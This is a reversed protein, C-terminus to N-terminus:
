RTLVEINKKGVYVMDEFRVGFRKPIYIGPEITFVMGERVVDSSDSSVSPKEHVELGVGHGTSHYFSYGKKKIEEEVFDHIDRVPMGIELRDIAELELNLIFESVEREERGASGVTITRTMDSFYNNYRAGLDVIVLSNDKIKEQSPNAHIDATSAGSALLIGQRFPPCESGNRRLESEVEAAAEAESIGSRVVEFAKDMGKLAISASKKLMGVEYPSKIMRKSEVIKTTPPKYGLKDVLERYLNINMNEVGLSQKKGKLYDFVKGSGYVRVDFPYKDDLYLSSHHEIYLDKLWLVAEDLGVVAVGTEMGTLYCINGKKSVMLHTLGEESLGERIQSLRSELESLLVNM